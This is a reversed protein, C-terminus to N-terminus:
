LSGESAARSGIAVLLDSARRLEVVAEDESDRLSEAWACLADLYPWAVRASPQRDGSEYYSISAPTVGLARALEGQSVGALERV